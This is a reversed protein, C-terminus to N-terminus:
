QNVVMRRFVSKGAPSIVPPLTEGVQIGIERFGIDVHFAKVGGSVRM